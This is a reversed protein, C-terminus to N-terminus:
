INKIYPLTVIIKTGKGVESYINFKGELLKVRERMGCIGFGGTEYDCNESISKIDFGIGNDQVKLNILEEEIIIIIKVDNCKAYKRINNLSEQIIRFITLSLMSNINNAEGKINLHINLNNEVNFSEVYREITPILGLDDLSMPRLDYIIRRIDQLSNRVIDKLDKLERKAQEQDIALLKDCLEAKLIVNSMIQAPGDHIDRAVRRREDEQAKLIKLAFTQRSKMDELQISLDQLNGTLFSMAIGVQNVLNEAKNLMTKTQSLRIETDNKRVVWEKEKQRNVLLSVRLKDAVEYAEKIQEESYINYNKSVNLLKSKSLKLDKELKILKKDLEKIDSEYNYLEEELKKVNARINEAIDYIQNKADAITETTKKIINDLVDIDEFLSNNM